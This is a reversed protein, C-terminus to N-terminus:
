AQLLRGRRETVERLPRELGHELLAADLTLTYAPEDEGRALDVVVDDPVRLPLVVGLDRDGADLLQVRERDAGRGVQDVAVRGEVLHDPRLLLRLVHTGVARDPVPQFLGDRNADREVIDATRPPCARALAIGCRVQAFLVPDDPVHESLADNRWPGRSPRRM